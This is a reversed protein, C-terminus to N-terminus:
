LSGARDPGMGPWRNHIYARERNRESKTDIAESLQASTIGCAALINGIFILADAAEQALDTEREEHQVIGDPIWPKWATCQQMEAIECYLGAFQTALWKRRELGDLACVDTGHDREQWYACSEVLHRVEALFTM